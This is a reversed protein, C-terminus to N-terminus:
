TPVIRKILNELQRINGPWEYNQFQRSLDTSIPTVPKNYQVSYKRLFHDTLIPIEELRDRLPPANITIVNLRFYLDQRFQGSAVATELNRNTAAILRVDVHM